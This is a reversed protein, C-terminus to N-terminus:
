ALQPSKLTSALGIPHVFSFHIDEHRVRVHVAFLLVEGFLKSPVTHSSETFTDKKERVCYLHQLLGTQQLETGFPETM